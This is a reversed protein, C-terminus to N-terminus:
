KNVTRCKLPKAWDFALHKFSLCLHKQWEGHFAKGSLRLKMVGVGIGQEVSFEEEERWLAM